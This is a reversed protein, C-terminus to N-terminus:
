ANKEGSKQSEKVKQGAERAALALGAGGAGWAILKAAKYVAPLLGGHVLELEKGGLERIGASTETQLIQM